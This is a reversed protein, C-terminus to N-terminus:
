PQEATQRNKEWIEQDAQSSGDRSSQFDPYKPDYDEFLGGPPKHFSPSKEPLFSLLNVDTILDEHWRDASGCDISFPHRQRESRRFRHIWV